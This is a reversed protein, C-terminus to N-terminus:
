KVPLAPFIDTAPMGSSQFKDEKLRGVEKELIKMDRKQKRKDKRAGGANIWVLLGGLVFGFAMAALVVVYVPLMVAIDDPFPSWTVSIVERNLVSFVAICVTIVLGFLFRIVAM